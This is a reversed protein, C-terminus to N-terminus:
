RFFRAVFPSIARLNEPLTPNMYICKWLNKRVMADSPLLILAKEWAEKAERFNGLEYHATGLNNMTENLHYRDTVPYNAISREYAAVAGRFDGKEKLLLAPTLDIKKDFHFNLSRIQNQNM